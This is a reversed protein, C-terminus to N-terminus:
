FARLSLPIGMKALEEQVEEYLRVYEASPKRTAVDYCEQYRKGEPAREIETEYKALLQNVLENARAAKMGTAAYAMEVNFQAELPTVGDTIIAKAPHV